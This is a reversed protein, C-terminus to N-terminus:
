CFGIVDKIYSGMLHSNGVAVLMIDVGLLRDDIFQLDKIQFTGSLNDAVDAKSEDNSAGNIHNDLSLGLM